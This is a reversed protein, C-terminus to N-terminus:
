GATAAALGRGLDEILDDCDEIGISLRVTGPTLATAARLEDPMDRPQMIQPPMVLSEVSGLSPTAAFLQLTDTFRRGCEMAGGPGEALDFSVVAGFDHMQERALAHRPHSALGPYHVRAVAPHAELWAAIRQASACQAEYRLYYTRMGRLVLFAAHPDLVPGLTTVDHRISKLLAANAIIAGAMVDSHGNAFKTLSHVFMDVDYQGHNHFGAFTNDMVTLAGHARAARTLRAIDAIKTVPNTPSEFLVLRTPRAALEREIGEDDEISMLTHTVGYRGLMRRLFHRSPGYSEAFCLVHDGGKLLGFLASSVAAVGSGVCLCEERGQLDALLRELQRTTPNSDRTYFYGEREGRLLRQTEAVTDFAFKVSQYIPAVVPRNDPALDAAPPHNVLTRPKM